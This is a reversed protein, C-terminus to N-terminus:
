APLDGFWGHDMALRSIVAINAGAGDAVWSSTVTHPTFRGPSDPLLLLLGMVVPLMAFFLAVVLFVGFICMALWNRAGAAFSAKMADIPKMDHFCVLAPAYWTAM